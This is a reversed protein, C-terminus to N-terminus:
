RHLRGLKASAQKLLQARVFRVTDLIAEIGPHPTPVQFAELGDVVDGLLAAHREEDLLEVGPRPRPATM